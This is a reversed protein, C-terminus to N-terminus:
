SICGYITPQHNFYLALGGFQWADFYFFILTQKTSSRYHCNKFLPRSTRRARTASERKLDYVYVYVFVYVYHLRTAFDANAYYPLAFYVNAFLRYAFVANAYVIIIYLSVDHLLRIQGSNARLKRPSNKKNEAWKQGNKTRSRTRQAHIHGRTNKKRRKAHKHLFYKANKALSTTHLNHMQMIRRHLIQM